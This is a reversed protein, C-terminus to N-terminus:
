NIYKLITERIIEYGKQNLHLGEITYKPNLVDNLLLKDYINIYTIYPLSKLINNLKVIEKNNRRGTTKKDVEPNVPFVSILYIEIFEDFSHIKEVIEKIRKSINEIGDKILEFDNTGIHLFVKKPKLEFVSENLRGLVGKSTDGGIGRNYVNHNPFYEYVNFDQTISDGVFVIGGPEAYKNYNKFAETKGMLGAIFLMQLFEDIGKKKAYKYIFYDSIIFLIIVIIFIWLPIMKREGDSKNCYM